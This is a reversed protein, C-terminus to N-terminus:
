ETDPSFLIEDPYALGLKERAEREIYEKSNMDAKKEELAEQERYEQAISKKLIESERKQQARMSQLSFYNGVVGCCLCLLVVLVFRCNKKYRIDKRAAM